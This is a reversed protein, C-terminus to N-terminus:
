SPRGTPDIGGLASRITELNDLLAADDDDIARQLEQEVRAWAKAAQAALRKGLPSLALVRGQPRAPDAVRKLWGAALMPRVMVSATPATCGLRRALDAQQMPGHRLQALVRAQGHHIGHGELEAAIRAELLRGIHLLIHFLPRPQSEM